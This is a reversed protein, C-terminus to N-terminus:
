ISSVFALWRTTLDAAFVTVREALQELLLQAKLQATALATIKMVAFATIM